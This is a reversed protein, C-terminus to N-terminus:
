WFGLRDRYNERLGISKVAFAAFGYRTRLPRAGVLEDRNDIQM